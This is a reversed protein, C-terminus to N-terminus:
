GATVFSKFLWVRLKTGSQAHAMSDLVKLGAATGGTIVAARRLFERRAILGADLREALDRLRSARNGGKPFARMSGSEGAGLLVVVLRRPGRPRAAHPRRARHRRRRHRLPPLSRRPIGVPRLPRRRPRDPARRARRRHVRARALPRRAGLG